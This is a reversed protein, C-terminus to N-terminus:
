LYSNMAAWVVSWALDRRAQLTLNLLLKVVYYLHLIAVFIKGVNEINNKLDLKELAIEPGNNTEVLSCYIGSSVKLFKHRILGNYLFIARKELWYSEWIMWCTELAKSPFYTDGVDDDICLPTGSGWSVWFIIARAVFYYEM